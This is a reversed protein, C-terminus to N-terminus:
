GVASSIPLNDILRAQGLWAAAFVRLTTSSTSGTALDDANRVQVYEPTFGQEALQRMAEQEIDLFDTRSAAQDQCRLKVKETVKMLVWLTKLRHLFIASIQMHMLMPLTQTSPMVIAKRLLM